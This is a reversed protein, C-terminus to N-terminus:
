NKNERRDIGFKKNDEPKLSRRCYLEGIAPNQKIGEEL